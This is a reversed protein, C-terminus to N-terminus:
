SVAAVFLANRGSRDAVDVHVAGAKLIGIVKTGEGQAAAQILEQSAVQCPLTSSTLWCNTSHGWVWVLSLM